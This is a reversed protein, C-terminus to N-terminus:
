HSLCEKVARDIKGQLENVLGNSSSFSFDQGRQKEIRKLEKENRETLLGQEKISQIFANYKEPFLQRFAEATLKEIDKTSVSEKNDVNLFVQRGLKEIGNYFDQWQKVLEKYTGEKTLQYPSLDNFFKQKIFTRNMLRYEFRLFYGDNDDIDIVKYGDKREALKNYINFQRGGTNTFWLLGTTEGKPTTTTAKFMGAYAGFLQLYEISPKKVEFTKAVDIRQLYANDVSKFDLGTERELKELALKIDDYRMRWNSGHYYRSLSGELEICDSYETIRFNGIHGVFYNYGLQKVDNSNDRWVSGAKDKVHIMITDIM